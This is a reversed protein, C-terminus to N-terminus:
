TVIRTVMTQATVGVVAGPQTTMKTLVRLEKEVPVPVLVVLVSLEM